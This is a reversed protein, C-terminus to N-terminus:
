EAFTIPVTFRTAKDDTLGFTLCQLFERKNVRPPLSIHVKESKGGSILAAPLTVQILSRDPLAVPVIQIPSGGVNRVEIDAETQGKALSVFGPLVRVLSSIDGKRYSFGTLRFSVKEQSPNNTMVAPSKIFQGHSMKSLDLRIEVTLTEGVAAAKEPLIIRTCACGPVARLVRLLSDSHNVLTIRHGVIQGYPVYGFEFEGGIVEIGSAASVTSLPSGVALFVLLLAVQWLYSTKSSIENFHSLV